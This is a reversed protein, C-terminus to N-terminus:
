KNAEIEFVLVVPLINSLASSTLSVIRSASTFPSRRTSKRRGHQPYIQQWASFLLFPDLELPLQRHGHGAQDNVVVSGCASTFTAQSCAERSSFVFLLQDRRSFPRTPAPARLSNM